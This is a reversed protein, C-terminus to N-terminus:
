RTTLRRILAAIQPTTLNHKRIYDALGPTNVGLAKDFTPLYQDPIDAILWDESQGSQPPLQLNDTSPELNASERRPPTSTDPKGSLLAAVNRSHPGACGPEMVPNSDDDLSAVLKEGYYVKRNNLTYEKKM